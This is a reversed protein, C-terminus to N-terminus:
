LEVEKANWEEKYYDLEDAFIEVIKGSDIEVFLTEKDTKLRYKEDLRHSCGGRGLYECISKKCDPDEGSCLYAINEEKM